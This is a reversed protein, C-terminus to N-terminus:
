VAIYGAMQLQMKFLGEALKAWRFTRKQMWVEAMNSPFLEASISQKIEILQM